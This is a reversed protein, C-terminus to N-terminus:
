APRRPAIALSRSANRRLRGLIGALLISISSLLLGIARDTTRAFRIRIESTGAELPIVMQNFEDLRGPVIRKGNVEVRWAPYNLLRLALRLPRKADVHIQKWGTKWMEVRVRAEPAKASEDATEPLIKTLPSAAPLDLHDDGLPDYEDTGEFGSGTVIAQQQDAMEDSDWWANRVLFHGLPVFVLLMVLTWIWGRRRTISAALFCSLVLAIISSWRWPFQVFRLEPLHNWLPTTFRFTLLTAAAGLLLLANWVRRRPTGLSEINSFNRSGLAASAFLLILTLACISAIWNFWTHVPDNIVDFLFNQSPLLGSSIAQTINVWRQEYAAPVLYFAALGFGLAFACAGRLAIRWSRQAFASWALLLGMSYTAIVGAPANSLWVAAFPVAFLALQSPSNASDDLMRCLRLAALLLLPFIACALQEAFDSRIYTILLAYPNAAYCASAFVAARESAIRRLLFFASVGAFTQTLLIFLVPVWSVPAILALVAGLMWSLPPYFIFRPEGFGHNTWATWRPYFTGEKWQYAVDLWSAAHFEFDHGSASGYWFFPLLIALSVLLSLGCAFIWSLVRRKTSAAASPFPNTM